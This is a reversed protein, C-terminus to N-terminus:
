QRRNLTCYNLNDNIAIRVDRLEKTTMKFDAVSCGADKATLRIAEVESATLALRWALKIKLWNKLYNCTYEPNPPIYADPARDGKSMNERGYVPALHYDNFIFNAFLCRANFDWKNAGTIWAHKLPVTHDVQMQKAEEFKLGTFNDHWEGSDVVCNKQNRFLVPRASSRILVKARTNWCTDDTPDNVWRGFHVRRAYIEDPEKLAEEHLNFKLLSYFRSTIQTFVEREFSLFDISQKPATPESITYYVDSITSQQAWVVQATFLVSLATFRLFRM